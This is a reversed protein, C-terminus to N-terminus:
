SIVPPNKASNLCMILWRPEQAKLVGNEHGETVLYKLDDRTVQEHDVAPDTGILRLLPYSLWRIIARLPSLITIVATVPHLFRKAWGEPYDAGRKRPIVIGFVVTFLATGLIVAPIAAGPLERLLLYGIVGEAMCLIQEMLHLSSIFGKPEDILEMLAKADPDGDESQDELETQNLNQIASGFGYFVALISSVACITLIGVPWYQHIDM